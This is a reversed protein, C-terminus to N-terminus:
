GWHQWSTVAIERRRYSKDGGYVLAVPCEAQEPLSRWYDIGKFFDGGITEGSKIEVPVLSNAFSILLDIEHGSADRWFFIDPSENRNRYNKLIESIVWTEFIAGRGGHMRLEESDRIRLLYCLLGTDTFYLKPSKILRKNFNKYHARLLFVQFSTQLVSLWRRATMHAIGADNALSSLNLLQGSRGACLQVFRGFVELDGVNIVERVDRELYAQYYSALWNQPELQKDHIRPYGGTFLRDFLDIDDTTKRVTHGIKEVDMMKQGALESRCFPLLYLVACRGALSQSISQLLLFNQSGSLIFQGPENTEDVIVQIYSFLDPAHQAEDIIAGGKFQGFFGRADERAFARQVPDELSVYHYEPFVARVLTTKGSQRPGTVSVVPFYQAQRKLVPALHRPIM